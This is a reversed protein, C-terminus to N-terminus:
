VQSCHPYTKLDVYPKFVRSIIIILLAKTMIVRTKYINTNVANSPVPLSLDTCNTYRFYQECSQVVENSRTFLFKKTIHFQQEIIRELAFWDMQDM